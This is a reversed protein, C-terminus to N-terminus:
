HKPAQESISGVMHENPFCALWDSTAVNGNAVRRRNTKKIYSIIIYFYHIISEQQCLHLRGDGVQRQGQVFVDVLQNEKCAALLEDM